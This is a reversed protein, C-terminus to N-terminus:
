GDDTRAVDVVAGSELLLESCAVHGGQSSAHLSSFRNPRTLNPLAGHDLLLKACDVFDHNCSVKPSPSLLRPFTLSPSLHPSPIRSFTPSPSLLPPLRRACHVSDHTRSVMLPTWGDHKPKNVAARGEILLRVCDARGHKCSVMLPSWGDVQCVLTPM